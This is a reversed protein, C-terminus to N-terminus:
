RPARKTLVRQLTRRHMALRRATVSVNRGCMEYINQIHEWRVRPASMPHDPPSATCGEPALLASLLDDVDAPKTLYDIAGLKAARVATALNGYGTQIIARADPRLRKLAAVVDLGCGDGLRLDVLAYAPASLNIQALGATVSGATIVKFGRAEMARALRQLLAEDDEVILM